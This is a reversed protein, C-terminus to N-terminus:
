STCKYNKKLVLLCISLTTQSRSLLLLNSYKKLLHVRAPIEAQFRKSTM